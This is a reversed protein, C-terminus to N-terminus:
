INTGPTGEMATSVWGTTTPLRNNKPQRADIIQKKVHFQHMELSPATFAVLQTYKLGMVVIIKAEHTNPSFIVM